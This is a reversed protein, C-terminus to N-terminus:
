SIADKDEEDQATGIAVAQAVATDGSHSLSLHIEEVGLRSALRRTSGHLRVSPRGRHDAVIEIEVMRCGESFGTGLAKSVAEKGAFRASLHQAPRHKASAYELEGSTFVRGTFRKGWRALARDLRAIEVIDIGVGRIKMTEVNREV